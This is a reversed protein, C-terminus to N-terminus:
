LSSIFQAYVHYKITYSYGVWLELVVELIRDDELDADSSPSPPPTLLSTNFHGQEAPTGRWLMADAGACEDNGSYLWSRVIKDVFRRGFCTCENSIIEVIVSL